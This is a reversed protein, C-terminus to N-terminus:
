KGRTRSEFDHSVKGSFCVHVSTACTVQLWFHKLFHEGKGVDEGEKVSWPHTNLHTPAPIPIHTGLAFCSPHWQRMSCLHVLHKGPGLAVWHKHRPCFKTKNFHEPKPTVQLCLTVWDIRGILPLNTTVSYLSLIVLFCASSSHWGSIQSKSVTTSRIM